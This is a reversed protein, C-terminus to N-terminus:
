SEAFLILIFFVFVLLALYRHIKTNIKDNKRHSIRRQDSHASYMFQPDEKAKLM